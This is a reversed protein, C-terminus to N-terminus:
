EDSGAKKALSDLPIILSERHIGFKDYIKHDIEKNVFMELTNEDKLRILSRTKLKIQLSDIKLIKSYYEHIQNKLEPHKFYRFISDQKIIYSYQFVDGSYPSYEYMDNETFYYEQYNNDKVSYWNGTINILDIEPSINEKKKCSFFFFTTLVLLLYKM